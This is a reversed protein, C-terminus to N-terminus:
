RCGGGGGGGGNRGIERTVYGAPVDGGISWIYLLHQGTQGGIMDDNNVFHWYVQSSTKVM